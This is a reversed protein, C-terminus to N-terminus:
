LWQWILSSGKLAGKFLLYCTKHQIYTHMHWFELFAICKGEQSLYSCIHMPPLCIKINYWFQNTSQKKGSPPFVLPRQSTQRQAKAPPHESKRFDKKEQNTEAPAGTPKEWGVSVILHLNRDTAVSWKSSTEKKRKKEESAKWMSM